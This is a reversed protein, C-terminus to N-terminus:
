NARARCALHFGVSSVFEGRQDKASFHAACVLCRAGLGFAFRAHPFLLTKSPIHMHTNRKPHLYTNNKHAHASTHTNVILLLTLTFHTASVYYFLSLERIVVTSHSAPVTVFPSVNMCMFSDM